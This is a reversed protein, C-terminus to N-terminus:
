GPCDEDSCGENVDQARDGKAIENAREQLADHGKEAGCWCCYFVRSKTTAMADDAVTKSRCFCHQCSSPKDPMLTEEQHRAPPRQRTAGARQKIAESYCM